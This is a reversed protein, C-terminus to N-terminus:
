KGAKAERITLVYGGEDRQRVSTAVVRYAGDAPAIFLIRSNLSVPSIDDNEAVVKGKEDELRLLTDFTSSELDIVYTRGAVMMIPYRQQHEKPKLQGNHVTESFRDGTKKALVEVDTWFKRLAAAEDGPLKALEKEDRLSALDPARMWARSAGAFFAGLPDGKDLLRARV